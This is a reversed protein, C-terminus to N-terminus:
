MSRTTKTSQMSRRPISPVSSSRNSKPTTLFPTRAKLPVATGEYLMAESLTTKGSRTGGLLVVNRIQDTTYNKM